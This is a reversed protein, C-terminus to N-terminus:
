GNSERLAICFYYKIKKSTCEYARILKNIKEKYKRNGEDGMDIQNSEHLNKIEIVFIGDRTKVVFDPYSLKPGDYVYGYKIAKEKENFYHNKGFFIFQKRDENQYIINLM